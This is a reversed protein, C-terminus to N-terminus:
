RIKYIVFPLTRGLKFYVRFWISFAQRMDTEKSYEAKRQVKTMLEQSLVVNNQKKYRQLM